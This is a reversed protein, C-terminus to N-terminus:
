WSAILKAREKLYAESYERLLFRRVAKAYGRKGSVVRNKQVRNAQELSKIM